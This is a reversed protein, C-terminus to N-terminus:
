SYNPNTPSTRTKLYSVLDNITREKHGLEKRLELYKM